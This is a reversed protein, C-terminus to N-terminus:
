FKKSGLPLVVETRHPRALTLEAGAVLFFEKAQVDNYIAALDGTSNSASPAYLLGHNATVVHFVVAAWKDGGPQELSLILRSALLAGCLGHSHPSQRIEGRIYRQWSRTAKGIDHCACAMREPMNQAALTVERLHELLNSRPGHSLLTPAPM